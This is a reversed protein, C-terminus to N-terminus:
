RWVGTAQYRDITEELNPRRAWRRSRSPVTGEWHSRAARVANEDEATAMDVSALVRLQDAARILMVAAEYSGATM